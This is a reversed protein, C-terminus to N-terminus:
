RRSNPGRSPTDNGIEGGGDNVKYVIQVYCRKVAVAAIGVVRGRGGRCVAVEHCNTRSQIMWLPRQAASLRECCSVVAGATDGQCSAVSQSAEAGSGFSLMSFIAAAGFAAATTFKHNNSIKTM